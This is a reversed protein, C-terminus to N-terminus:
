FSQRCDVSHVSTTVFSVSGLARLRAWHEDALTQTCQEKMRQLTHLCLQLQLCTAQALRSALMRTLGTQHSCCLLDSIGYRWLITATQSHPLCEHALWWRRADSTCLDDARWLPKILRAQEMVTTRFM